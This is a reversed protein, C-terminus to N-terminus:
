EFSKSRSDDDYVDGDDNDNDGDAIPDARFMVIDLFFFINISGTAFACARDARFNFSEM